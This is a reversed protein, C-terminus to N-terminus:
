WAGAEWGLDEPICGDVESDAHECTANDNPFERQILIEQYTMVGIADVTMNVSSNVVLLIAQRQTFAGRQRESYSIPNWFEMQEKSTVMTPNSNIGGLNLWRQMGSWLKRARIGNIDPLAEPDAMVLCFEHLNPIEDGDAIGYHIDFELVSLSGHFPIYALRSMITLNASVTHAFNTFRARKISVITKEKKTETFDVM